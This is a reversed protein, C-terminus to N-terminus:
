QRPRRPLLALVDALHQHPVPGDRQGAQRAHPDAAHSGTRHSDPAPRNAASCKPRGAAEIMAAIENCLVGREDVCSDSCNAMCSTFPDLMELTANGLGAALALEYAPELDAICNAACADHCGCFAHCVPRGEDASGNVFCGFDVATSNDVYLTLTPPAGPFNAVAEGDCASSCNSATCNVACQRMCSGFCAPEGIWFGATVVGSLNWDTLSPPYGSRTLTENRHLWESGNNAAQEEGAVREVFYAGCTGLCHHPCNSGCDSM